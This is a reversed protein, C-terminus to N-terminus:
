PNYKPGFARMRPDQRYVDLPGEETSHGLIRPTGLVFLCRTQIYDLRDVVIHPQLAHFESPANVIESRPGQDSPTSEKAMTYQQFRVGRDTYNQAVNLYQTLYVGNGHARRHVIKKFHLGERIIGRWIMLPSGHWAFISSHTPQLRVAASRLADFFDRSRTLHVKRSVSSYRDRFESSVIKQQAKM